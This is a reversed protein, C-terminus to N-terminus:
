KKLYPNNPDSFKADVEQILYRYAKGLDIEYHNAIRIIMFLIDVIDDQIDIKDGVRLPRYGEHMMISDALDGVEATLEIVMAMIDWNKLEIRTEFLDTLRKTEKVAQSFDM